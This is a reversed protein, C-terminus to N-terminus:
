EQEPLKGTKLFEKVEEVSGFPLDKHCKPCKASDFVEIVRKSSKTVLQLVGTDLHVEEELTRSRLEDLAGQILSYAYFTLQEKLIVVDSLEEGCEPCKQPDGMPAFHPCDSQSGGCKFCDCRDDVVSYRDNVLREDADLRENADNFCREKPVPAFFECDAQKDGDCEECDDAWFELDGDRDLMGDNFCKRKPNAKSKKKRKNM